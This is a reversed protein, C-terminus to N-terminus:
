DKACTLHNPDTSNQIYKNECGFSQFFRKHFFPMVENCKEEFTSQLAQSGYNLLVTFILFNILLIVCFGTYSILGVKSEAKSAFFGLYAVLIM